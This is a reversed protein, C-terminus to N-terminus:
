NARPSGLAAYAARVPGAGPGSAPAAHQMMMAHLHSYPQYVRHAHPPLSYIQQRYAFQDLLAALLPSHKLTRSDGLVVLKARARTVAVNIRRWDSLLAGVGGAESGSANSRVLSLLVVDADRGQFRDVTSCEVSSLSPASPASAAAPAAAAASSGTAVSAAQQAERREMEGLLVRMLTLQARYPSIFGMRSPPVGLAALAHLLMCSLTAEIPNRLSGSAGGGAAGAAKGDGPSPTFTPGKRAPDEAAAQEGAAPAAALALARSDAANMASTDLFVVPVAPNIVYALWDLNLQLSPPSPTHGEGGLGAASPLALARPVGIVERMRMVRPIHLTQNSVADNACKLAGRYVLENSIAMIAANMRYQTALTSVALPHATCLSQFLSVGLGMRQALPSRVLPPLQHHDGVLIFSGAPKTSGCGLFRLAGLTVPHSQQSCEDLLVYAFPNSNPGQGSRYTTLLPHNLNLCTTAVLLTSSALARLEAVNSYTARFDSSAAAPASGPRGPQLLHGHVRPHVQTQKGIRVFRTFRPLTPRDQGSTTAAAAAAATADVGDLLRCLINDVASHTYAALLVPQELATLLHVLFVILMSKGSGPTGLVLTYDQATLVRIVAARQDANLASHFYRLVQSDSPSL